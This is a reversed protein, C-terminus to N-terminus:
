LEPRRYSGFRSFRRIPMRNTGPAFSRVLRFSWSSQARIGLSRLGVLRDEVCYTPPETSGCSHPAAERLSDLRVEPLPYSFYAANESLGILLTFDFLESM